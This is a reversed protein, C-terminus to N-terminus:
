VGYFGFGGVSIKSHLSSLNASTVTSYSGSNAASFSFAKCGSGIVLISRVAIL